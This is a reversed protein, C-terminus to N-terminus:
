AVKDIQMARLRRKREEEKALKLRRVMDLNIAKMLWVM